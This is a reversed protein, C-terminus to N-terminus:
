GLHKKLRAQLLGPFKGVWAANLPSPHPLPCVVIDRSLSGSSLKAPFEAEYRDERKWFADAAGKAAYCAFWQFAETGLTIVVKGQWCELLLREMAPRFREKVADSYAKNGPPKYPVTNSLFVHDLAAALLKDQPSPTIGKAALIQKRVAKGASGVQPQGHKVEDRGLDRGFSCIAAAPNGACPIPTLPDKGLAAYVDRDIPFDFGRAVAALAATITSLEAM